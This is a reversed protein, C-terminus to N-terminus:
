LIYILHFNMFYTDLPKNFDYKNTLDRWIWYMNSKKSIMFKEKNFHSLPYPTTQTKGLDFYIVNEYQAIYNYYAKYFVIKSKAQSSFVIRQTKGTRLSM